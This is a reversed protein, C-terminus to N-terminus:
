DRHPLTRRPPAALREFALPVRVLDRDLGANARVYYLHPTRGSVEFNPTAAAHDIISPYIISGNPNGDTTCPPYPLTGPLLLQPSSWHILDESLSFFTGCVVAGDRVTVGSGVLLYAELYSNYTLSGHLDGITEPSVFTCPALGTPAPTGDETYPPRMTLAFGTGDWAQWSAPDALDDTRMLCTGRVAQNVPDPIAFFLAYYFGDKHRVINSPSFYGYPGPTRGRPGATPNWPTPVAAVVHHPFSPQLFSRGGDTSVAYTIANYWCPNSPDSVGPRCGAAIPDHYENHILAHVREGERYVSVIWEQNDFTFPYPSDGSRLVPTCVRALADFSPGALWYNDPANGSVLWLLDDVPSRFARAQVDPLDLGAAERCGVRSTDMVLEEEGVTVRVAAPPGAPLDAVMSLVLCVLVTGVSGPRRGAVDGHGEFLQGAGSM